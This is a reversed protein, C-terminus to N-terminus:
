RQLRELLNGNRVWTEKITKKVSSHRMWAVQFKFSSQRPMNEGSSLTLLLPVHDLHLKPLHTIGVDLFRDCWAVNAMVRDLCAGRFTSKTLGRM